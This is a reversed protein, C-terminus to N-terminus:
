ERADAGVLVREIVVPEQPRDEADRAVAAIAQVRELTAEDCTGFITHKGDLYTVPVETIFFQSGNTDQGSNAMALRAPQDFRRTPVPEDIFRYGPGGSGTGTPDGGQIMFGPIVRHFTTGEYYPGTKSAGTTPDVYPQKGTALGVFNAVTVPAEQWLLECQLAGMNTEIRVPLSGDEAVGLLAKFAATPDPSTALVGGDGLPLGREAAAPLYRDLAGALRSVQFILERNDVGGREVVDLHPLAAAYQGTQILGLAHLAHIPPDNPFREAAARVAEVDPAGSQYAWMLRASVPHPSDPLAASAADLYATPDDGGVMAQVGATHQACGDAPAADARALVPAEFDKPVYKEAEAQESLARQLVLIERLPGLADRDGEWADVAAIGMSPERRLAAESAQIWLAREAKGLRATPAPLCLSLGGPVTPLWTDAIPAAGHKACGSLAVPAILPLLALLAYTKM